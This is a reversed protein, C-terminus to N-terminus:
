YIFSIHYFYVSESVRLFIKNRFSLTLSNKKLSAFFFFYLRRTCNKKTRSTVCQKRREKCKRTKGATDTNAEETFIGCKRQQACIDPM